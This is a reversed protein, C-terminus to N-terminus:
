NISCGGLPRLNQTNSGGGRGRRKEEHGIGVEPKAAALSQHPRPLPFPFASPTHTSLPGLSPSGVRGGGKGAQRHLNELEMYLLEKGRGGKM